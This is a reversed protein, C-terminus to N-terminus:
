LFIVEDTLQACMNLNHSLLDYLHCTSKKHFAPQIHIDEYRDVYVINNIGHEM